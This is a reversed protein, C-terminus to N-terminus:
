IDMNLSAESVKGTTHIMESSLFNTNRASWPLPLPKEVFMTKMLHNIIFAVIKRFKGICVFTHPQAPM